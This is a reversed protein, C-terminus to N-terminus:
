LQFALSLSSVRGGYERHLRYHECGYGTHQGCGHLLQSQGGRQELGSGLHEHGETALLHVIHNIWIPPGRPDTGM